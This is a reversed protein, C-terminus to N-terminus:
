LQKGDLGIGRLFLEVSARRVAELQRPEPAVGFQMVRCPSGIVLNLFIEAATDVDGIQVLGEDMFRALLGSVARLGRLWGEEHAIRALDPFQRMQGILIRQVASFEPELVRETMIRSLRHLTAALDHQHPARNQQEAAASIQALVTAIQDEVVAKFLERKDRYRAYVTPKSVGAAEAVADVSTGDFGREMFLRTAEALLRADRVLAAARTPRGTRAPRRAPVTAAPTKAAGRRTRIGHADRSM